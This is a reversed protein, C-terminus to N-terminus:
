STVINPLAFVSATGQEQVPVVREGKRITMRYCCIDAAASYSMSLRRCSCSLYPRYGDTFYKWCRFSKPRPLSNKTVCLRFPSRFPSHFPPHFLVYYSLRRSMRRMTVRAFSFRKKYGNDCFIYVPQWVMEILKLGIFFFYMSYHM